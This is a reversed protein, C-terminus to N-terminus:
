IEKRLESSLWDLDDTWEIIAKEFGEINKPASRRFMFISRFIKDYRAKTTPKGWSEMYDVSGCFPLDEFLVRRLILRRRNEKEGDNGVKYGMLKLMGKEPMKHIIGKDHRNKSDILILNKLDLADHFEKSEGKNNEELYDLYNCVKRYMSFVKDYELKPVITKLKTFDSKAIFDFDYDNDSM